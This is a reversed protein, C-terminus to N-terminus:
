DPNGGGSRLRPCAERSRCSKLGDAFSLHNMKLYAELKEFIRETAGSNDTVVKLAATSAREYEDNDALWLGWVSELQEANQVVSGGGTKLLLSAEASVHHNPGFTVPLKHAAPEIVSHVGRGFGGGVYAAFGVAYLDALIGVRDALLINASIKEHEWDSLMTITLGSEVASQRNREVTENDPEHPAIVMKLRPHKERLRTYAQWAINEGPQWSSGAILVPGPGLAEKLEEFRSKNDRARQLVRDYRTDGGVLLETQCSVLPKIRELDATGVTWIFDLNKMFQRHFGRAPFSYRRTRSHFNANVLGTPIELMSAARLMNPWFDHKFIVLVDPELRAFLELHNRLFDAPSFGNAWLGATNRVLMAASPSSYSVALRVSGAKVLKDILPRAGEYEGASAVHIMVVPHDNSPNIQWDDAGGKRQRLAERLKKNRMSACKALVYAAPLLADYIRFWFGGAAKERNFRTKEANFQRRRTM